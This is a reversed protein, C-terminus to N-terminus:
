IELGPPGFRLTTNKLVNPGYEILAYGVFLAVAILVVVGLVMFQKLWKIRMAETAGSAPVTRTAEYLAVSFFLSVPVVILNALVVNIMAGTQKGMTQAGLSIVGVVVAGLIGLVIIRALIPWIQASVIRWSEAIAVFGRKGELVAIYQAFMTVFSLYLGPIILLGVGGITVLGRIIAIVLLPLALVLASRFAASVSTRSEGFGLAIAIIGCSAVYGLLAAVVEGGEIAYPITSSYFLGAITALTPALLLATVPVWYTSWMDITKSFLVGFPPIPALTPPQGAASEGGIAPTEPQVVTPMSENMTM